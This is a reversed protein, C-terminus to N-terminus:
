KALTCGIASICNQCAKQGGGISKKLCIEVDDELTIEQEWAIVGENIINVRKGFYIHNRVPVGYRLAKFVDMLRKSYWKIKTMM